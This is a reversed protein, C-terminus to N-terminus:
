RMWILVRLGWDAAVDRVRVVAIVDNVAVVVVVM